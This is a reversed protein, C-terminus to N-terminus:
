WAPHSQSQRKISRALMLVFVVLAAGSIYKGVKFSTPDYQFVIQHSGKDLPVGRAFGDVPLIATTKGDVFAKWGPYFADALILIGPSTDAVEIEIWTNTEQIIKAQAPVSDALNAAPFNGEVVVPGEATLMEPNFRDSEVVQYAMRVRPYAGLDEFLIAGTSFVQKVVLLARIRSFSGQIDQKTLLLYSAGLKRLLLPNRYTQKLFQDYRALDRPNSSYTQPILNGSLPWNRLTKTGAIRGGLDKLCSINHTDPFISNPASFKVLPHAVVFLDLLTLIVLGISTLVISPRFMTFIILVLFAALFAIFLGGEVIIDAADPRPEKFRMVLLVSFVLGVVVLLTLFRKLTAACSDADLQVWEEATVSVVLPILLFNVLMLNPPDLFALWPRASLFRPIIFSIATFMLGVIVFADTQKRRGLSVFPRLSFWLLLMAVQARGVFFLTVPHPSDPRLLTTKSLFEPLFAVVLDTFRPVFFSSSSTGSSVSERVYELYPLVQISTLALSFLISGLFLPSITLFAQISGAIQYCRVCSYALCFVFAVCAVEPSGGMLIMSLSFVLIYWGNKSTKTAILEAAVIILPFWAVGDSFPAVLRTFLPTSCQFVAAVFCAAAAGLGLKRAAYYACLGAVLVKLWASIVFGALLPFLYFPVSFVSFCRTRWLALFPVGCSELPNWLLSDGTRATHNMFVRWPIYQLVEENPALNSDPAEEAAEAWPPLSALGQLNVPVKGILTPYLFVAAVAILCGLCTLHELLVGFKTRLATM